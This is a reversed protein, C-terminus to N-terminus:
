TKFQVRYLFDFLSYVLFSPSIQAYETNDPQTGLGDYLNSDDDIYGSIHIWICVRHKKEM